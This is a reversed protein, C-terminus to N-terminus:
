NTGSVPGLYKEIWAVSRRYRDLIHKEERFGHPERPYVVLETPVNYRKLGRYLMQSQSLPDTTDSDGQLILTPTKANKIFFIPSSKQFAPFNEYPTGFYWEDGSSRAETGFETALDAMGAGSIAVKFRDTQTIAWEAMYGGYSWGAIGLRNPDAIGRKVLDDVGAMVDKFDGGGWDARNSALFKQGYGTSGRINPQVVTYGAAAMLQTLADFHNRWVGAPGGHIMMVLPQPHGERTGAGKYIAAEIQMGDFSAFRYFEPRVLAVNLGDNLHTVAKGEVFVEPLSSASEGIYAVGGGHATAFGAADLSDDTVLKRPKGGVVDLETHFGNSYLVAVHSGNLWEFHMVPRDKMPGTVNVAAQSGVPCIFLDQAGPGDGPSSVFAYSKGDPSVQIGRFPGKPNLVEQMAGDDMAVSYIRETRRDDAPRDTASVILHKGDPLFDFERLVWPGKSIAKVSKAAVDLIWARAPKSDVDIVRADDGDRQKKEEEDTRPDTALFVIQKGDKAWKFQQVSNKASTLKLAEGGAAPMRWIQNSEERDSLFALWAGDPSWRPSSESHTSTTWQRLEHSGLDYVWIHRLTVRGKPPEQVTFALRKGDPSFQLDSPERVQLAKEPTLKDAALASAAFVATFLLMRRLMLLTM